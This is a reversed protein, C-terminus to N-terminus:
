VEVFVEKVGEDTLRSVRSIRDAIARLTEEASSGVDILIAYVSFDLREKEALFRDRWADGIRAEGDTVFVVDGKRFRSEALTELALDLPREFDTGGGPFYEALDLAAGLDTTTRDGPNLEFTKLESEGSSFLIARFRRRERRAIELLTLTVAKAWVEKDGAMSSSVDLCVIMPGRGREDAGRLEYELLEGEVFRRRWDRGLVPHRVTVLEQPLLRGLDRGAEVAFAEESAREFMKRRLALAQERMRGLLRSLKRLKESKALRRGLELSAGAQGKGDVGLSRGFSDSEEFTEDLTDAIELAAAALRKASQEKGRDAEQLAEKTKRELRRELANAERELKRGLEDLAKAKDKEGEAADRLEEAAKMEAALSEITEEDKALDFQDVLDRRNLIKESQLLEIARDGLLCAGLAARDVDLETRERLHGLAPESLLGALLNEHIRASPAVDAVSRRVVNMKYLGAFLDRLLSAFRPLLVAGREEVRRLPESAHRLEEFRARDFGDTEIWATERALPPPTFARRAPPKRKPM